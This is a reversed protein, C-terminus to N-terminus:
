KEIGPRSTIVFTNSGGRGAAKNERLERGGVSGKEKAAGTRELM